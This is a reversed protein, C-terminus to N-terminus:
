KSPETLTNVQNDCDPLSQEQEPEDPLSLLWTALASVLAKRDCRRNSRRYTPEIQQALTRSM